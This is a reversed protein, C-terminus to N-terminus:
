SVRSSSFEQEETYEGRDPGPEGFKMFIHSGMYSTKWSFFMSFKGMWVNWDKWQIKICHNRHICNNRIGLLWVIQALLDAQLNSPHGRFRLADLFAFAVRSITQSCGEGSSTCGHERLDYVPKGSIGAVLHPLFTMWGVTLLHFYVCIQLNTFLFSPLQKSLRGGFIALHLQTLWQKHFHVTLRLYGWPM